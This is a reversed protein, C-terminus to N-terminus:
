SWWWESDSSKPDFADQLFIVKEENEAIENLSQGLSSGLLLKLSEELLHNQGKSLVNSKPRNTKINVM